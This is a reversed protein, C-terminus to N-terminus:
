FRFIRVLIGSLLVKLKLVHGMVLFHEMDNVKPLNAEVIGKGGSEKYVLELAYFCLHCVEASLHQCVVIVILVFFLFFLDYCFVYKHGVSKEFNNPVDDNRYNDYIGGRQGWKLQREDM